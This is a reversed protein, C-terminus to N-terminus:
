PREKFFPDIFSKGKKKFTLPNLLQRGLYQFSLGILVSPHKELAASVTLIQTDERAGYQRFDPRELIDEISRVLPNIMVEGHVSMVNIKSEILLDLMKQAMDDVTEIGMERRHEKTDLLGMISYLPRTLENNEIEMLFLRIDDPIDMLNIEYVKKNKKNIGMASILEPSLYMDKRDKEFIEIYDGTKNNKIHFITVFENIEGENLESITVINDAIIVLSYDSLNDNDVNLMIENASLTFFDNFEKPFEMKESATTLLHKSSLVAQSVPNTIIAGAFAGIGVDNKNTHFLVDGYCGRCIGHKSACTIPSKILIKKGILDTENGTLIKYTHQGPTRYYRGILRELHTKTKIEITIPHVSNCIKDDKRLNINSVLLMNKRAFHGSKGMVSKNMILAKRGGISDIFYNSVNGLGGVVLNSNIPQPITNGALDPKLGGSISFESLQKSKIGTGSRLIPRLVNEESMLIEIEENMLDNLHSEIKSPQWAPDLKTHIIEDFRENKNAVDIFAEINMTLGLLINFDTSIRSLNFILDHLIKNLRKNSIKSRYPVVIMKDIYKKIYGSSLKTADVIYAENILDQSDLEILPEWFFLNTLFHRLQLVQIDSDNHFKFYVPCERLKKHEFGAKICDYIEDIFARYGKKTSMKEEIIFVTSEFYKIIDEINEFNNQKTM